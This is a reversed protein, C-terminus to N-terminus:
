EVTVASLRSSREYVEDISAPLIDKRTMIGCILGSRMNAVLIHRTGTRRFLRYAAMSPARDSILVPDTDTFESLDLVVNLIDAKRVREILKKEADGKLRGPNPWAADLHERVIPTCRDAGEGSLVRERKECENNLLVLITARDITGILQYDLLEGYNIDREEKIQPRYQSAETGETEGEGEETSGDSEKRRKMAEVQLNHRSPLWMVRKKGDDFITAKMGLGTATIIKSVHPPADGEVGCELETEFGALGSSELGSRPEEACDRRISSSRRIVVPNERGLECNAAVKFFVPFGHHSNSELLNILSSIRTRRRVAMVSSEMVDSVRVKSYKDLSPVINALYPMGKLDIHLDYIGQKFLFDGSLKAVLAVLMTAFMASDGGTAELAIVAVSITRTIGALASVSGIFTYGTLSVDNRAPFIAQVALGFLRGYVGGLVFGPFFVGAPIAIGYTWIIFVFNFALAAAVPAARFVDTGSHFLLGRVVSDSPNFMVAAWPSFQGEPCTFRAFNGLPANSLVKNLSKEDNPDIPVCESALYPILIRCLATLLAIISTELIRPVRKTVYRYRFLTISRNIIPLIAGVIGGIIGVLFFGPIDKFPFRTGDFPTVLKGVQTLTLTGFGGGPLGSALFNLVRTLGSGLLCASLTVIGLEWSWHTCAEEYIWMWAGMPSGFAVAVGVAAGIATFDRKYAETRFQRLFPLNLRFKFTSSAAQSVAAGIVAGVHITPGQKGCILGSAISFTIGFGKIFFTYISLFGPIRVGNLYAKLEPIGSGAGLPAAFIVLFTPILVYLLSHAIFVPFAVWFSEKFLREALRYLGLTLGRTLQDMGFGVIAVALAVVLGLFGTQRALARSQRTTQPFFHRLNHATAGDRFEITEFKHTRPAFFAAYSEPYVSRETEM